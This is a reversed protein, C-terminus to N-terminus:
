DIWANWLRRAALITESATLGIPGRGDAVCADAAAGHLYTAALVPLHHPVSPARQALLASLLGTLADGMGGSAMGPNGTPNMAWVTEQHAGNAHRWAVISGAGKLVVVARYLRALMCAAAIRDEQVKAVTSGLLRAAELPHPTLYTPAIRRAVKTALPTNLALLNLADADLVLPTELAACHELLAVAAASQGLGPGSAIVSAREIAGERQVSNADHLMLEPHLPDYAPLPDGGQADVLGVIIKGAGLLLAARATLLAAGMMGPAGGLVLVTGSDGKHTNAARRRLLAAFDSREILGHNGSAQPLRVELTEVMVEGAVETGDHTHLGPKDGILTVTRTANIAGRVANGAADNWGLAEGSEAQLGTPVDLALIPIGSANVREIFAGLAAELKRKLGIGFLGDIILDADLTRPLHTLTPSNWREFARTADPPLNDANGIFLVEVQVGADRLNTAVEFADGGNNGPGALVLVRVPNRQASQLMALAHRTAAIGARKMLADGRTLAASQATRLQASTYLPKM